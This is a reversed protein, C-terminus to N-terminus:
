EAASTGPATRSTQHDALDSEAIVYRWRTPRKVRGLSPTTMWLRRIGGNGPDHKGLIRDGAGILAHDFGAPPETLRHDVTNDDWVVEAEVAGALHQLALGASLADGDARERVPASELLLQRRRLHVL